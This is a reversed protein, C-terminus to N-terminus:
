LGPGEWGATDPGVQWSWIVCICVCVSAHVCLHVCVWLLACVPVCVPVRVFTHMGGVPWDCGGAGAERGGAGQGPLVEGEAGGQM